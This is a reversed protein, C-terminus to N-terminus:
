STVLQAVLLMSPTWSRMWVMALWISHSSWAPGSPM